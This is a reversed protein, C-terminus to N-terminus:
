NTEQNNIKNQQELSLTKSAQEKAAKKAKFKEITAKIDANQTATYGLLGLSGGFLTLGLWFGLIARKKNRNNPLAIHAYMAPLLWFPLAYYWPQNFYVFGVSSFGLIILLVVSIKSNHSFAGLFLAGYGLMFFLTGLAIMVVILVVLFEMM